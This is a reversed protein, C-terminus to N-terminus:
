KDEKNLLVLCTVEVYDVIAGEPLSYKSMFDQAEKEDNFMKADNLEATLQCYLDTGCSVYRKGNPSYNDVSVIIKKM